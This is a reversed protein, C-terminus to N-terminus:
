ASFRLSFAIMKLMEKYFFDKNLYQIATGFIMWKDQKMIWNSNYNSLSKLCSLALNTLFIVQSINQVIKFVKLPFCIFNNLYYLM